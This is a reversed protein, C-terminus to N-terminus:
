RITLQAINLGNSQIYAAKLHGVGFLGPEMELALSCQNTLAGFRTWSHSCGLSVDCRIGHETLIREARKEPMGMRLEPALALAETPGLKPSVVASSTRGCSTAVLLLPVVFLIQVRAHAARWRFTQFLTTRTFVLVFSLTM